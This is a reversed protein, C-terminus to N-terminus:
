ALPPPTMCSLHSCRLGTHLVTNSPAPLAGATGSTSNRFRGNGSKSSSRCGRGRGGRASGTMSHGQLQEEEDQGHGAYGEPIRRDQVYAAAQLSVQHPNAVCAAAMAEGLTVPAVFARQEVM